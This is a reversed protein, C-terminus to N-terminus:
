MERWEELLRNVDKHVTRLSYTQLDLRTRVENQIDRYSFGRKYLKAIIDMRLLQDKKCERMKVGQQAM